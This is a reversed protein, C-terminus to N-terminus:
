GGAGESLFGSLPLHPNAVVTRLVSHYLGLMTTIGEHNFLATSYELEVTWQDKAGEILNMTLDFRATRNKVVYPSAELAGFRDSRV